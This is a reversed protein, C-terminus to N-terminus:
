GEGERRCRQSLRRIPDGDPDIIDVQVIMDDDNKQSFSQRMALREGGASMEGTFTLVDGRWGPSTAIFRGGGYYFVACTYLKAGADYGWYARAQRRRPHALTQEDDEAVGLFHKGLEWRCILSGKVDRASEDRHAEVRGKYGWIGVFYDLAELEPPPKVGDRPDGKM